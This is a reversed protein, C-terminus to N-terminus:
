HFEMKQLPVIIYGKEILYRYVRVERSFREGVLLSAKLKVRRGTLFM